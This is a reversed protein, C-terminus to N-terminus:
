MVYERTAVYSVYTVGVGEERLCFFLLFLYQKNECRFFRWLFVLSSDPFSFPIWGLGNLKLNVSPM